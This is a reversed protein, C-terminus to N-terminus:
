ELFDMNPFLHEMKEDGYAEDLFSDLRGSAAIDRHRDHWRMIAAASMLLNAVMFCVLVVCSLNWWHGQMKGLLFAFLPFVYHAFLVGLLGWIISMQPSIRGALNLFHDDYNWTTVGFFIEQFWSAFFEIGSGVLAFVAFQVPVSRHAVMSSVFYMLAAGFGYVICFPGWVLASHSEWFGLRVINWIGELIFGIISGGFFLWFLEACRMRLASERKTKKKRFQHSQQLKEPDTRMHEEM